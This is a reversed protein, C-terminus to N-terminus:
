SGQSLTRASQAISDKTDRYTAASKRLYAAYDRMLEEMRQFFKNNAWDPNIAANNAGMITLEIEGVYEDKLIPYTGAESLVQPNSYIIREEPACAAAAFVTLGCLAIAIAKKMM